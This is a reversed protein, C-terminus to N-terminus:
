AKMWRKIPSLLRQMEEIDATRGVFYPQQKERAIENLHEQIERAIVKPSAIKGVKARQLWKPLDSYNVSTDLIYVLSKAIQKQLVRFWAESLEFDVWVSKLSNNSAFFVFVSSEDLGTEISKKFEEGNEFSKEDIVCFQRGLADAIPRIFSKDASSHSLFAKMRCVTFLVISFALANNSCFLCKSHQRKPGRATGL